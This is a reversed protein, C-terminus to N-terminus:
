GASKAKPAAENQAILGDVWRMIHAAGEEITSNNDYSLVPVGARKIFEVSEDIAASWANYPVNGGFQAVIRSKNLTAKQFHPRSELRSMVAEFARTPDSPIHILADPLPCVSLFRPLDDFWPGVSMLSIGRHWLGEDNFIIPSKDAYTDCVEYVGMSIAYRLRMPMKGDMFKECIKVFEPHKREFCLYQYLFESGPNGRVGRPQHLDPLETLVRHAPMASVGLEEYEMLSRRMISTKGSGPLGIFEIYM